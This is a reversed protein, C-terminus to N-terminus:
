NETRATHFLSTSVIFRREEKRRIGNKMCNMPKEDSISGSECSRFEHKSKLDVLIVVHFCVLFLHFVIYSLHIETGGDPYSDPQMLIM